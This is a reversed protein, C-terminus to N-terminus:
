RGITIIDRITHVVPIFETWRVGYLTNEAVFLTKTAMFYHGWPYYPVPPLAPMCLYLRGGHPTRGTVTGVMLLKVHGTGLGAAGFITMGLLVILGRLTTNTRVAGAGTKSLYLTCPANLSGRSIGSTAYEAM